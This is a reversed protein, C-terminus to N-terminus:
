AAEAVIVGGAGALSRLDLKRWGTQKLWADAEVEAYARGEGSVVLFEGSILAAATPQTRTPDMWWDVLLLRTGAAAHRHMKDLLALNSDISLVHLTNAVIMVDHGDPLPDTFFNGEVVAVRDGELEDALRQRAVACAGPLEFLTARLAPYRRLLPLLFSGTGGGVDLVNRHSSFDYVEPLSTAMGATIAEVGTSFIQQEEETFRGFHSQGEGRRVAEELSMWTPYSIRDLFRMAPRLDPGAAGALFAATVTTNRYHEGDRELLGLSIMADASICLTRVPIGCRAALEDPTAPMDALKEFIGIATAVFLHKAAMFGMAVRMIAEPTIAPM